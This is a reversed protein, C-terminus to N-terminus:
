SASRTVAVRLDWSYWAPKEDVTAAAGLTGRSQIGGASELEAAFEEQVSKQGLSAVNLDPAQKAGTCAIVKLTWLSQNQDGRRSLTLAQERDLGLHVVDGSSLTLETGQPPWIPLVNGDDSFAVWGLQLRLATKLAVRIEVWIWQKDAVSYLGDKPELPALAEIAQHGQPYTGQGARLKVELASSLTNDGARRDRARLYRGYASLGRALAAGLVGAKKEAAIREILPGGDPLYAVIDDTTPRDKKDVSETGFRDTRVVIWGDRASAWPEPSPWVDKPVDGSWRRLEAHAPTMADGTEHVLTFFKAGDPQRTVAQRMAEPMPEAGAAIRVVIPKTLPSPRVLRARSLDVVSATAESLRATSTMPTSAEIVAEVGPAAANHFDSTDPPYIAIVASRELGQVEGGDVTLTGDDAKRVTFGPAFPRWAGGFVPKERRGELSPTQSTSKVDVARQAVTGRLREYFDMWRLSPVKEPPVGELEKLLALTLLGHKVRKQQGDDGVLIAVDEKSTESDLCGTLMVFDGGPYAGFPGVVDGVGRSGSAAAQQLAPHHTTFIQWEAESLPEVQLSRELVDTDVARTSAGSHCTDAIVTATAGQSEISTLLAHIESGLILNTYGGAPDKAVDEAVFGYYRDKAGSSTSRDLRTGHGAYFLVVHDAAAVGGPQALAQFAARINAATAPIRDPGAAPEGPSTLCRINAEPVQVKDVLFRRMADADNVCGSLQKGPFAPYHDIGIILAHWQRHGDEARAGDDTDTVLANEV